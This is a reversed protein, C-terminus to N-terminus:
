IEMQLLERVSNKGIEFSTPTFRILCVVFERQRVFESDRGKNEEIKRDM